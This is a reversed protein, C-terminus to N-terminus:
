NAIFSYKMRITIPGKLPQNASFISQPEFSREWHIGGASIGMQRNYPSLGNALTGTTSRETQSNIEYHYTVTFWGDNQNQGSDSSHLILTDGHIRFNDRVRQDLDEFVMQAFLHKIEQQHRSNQNQVNQVHLSFALALGCIAVWVAIDKISFKMNLHIVATIVSGSGAIMWKLFVRLDPKAHM